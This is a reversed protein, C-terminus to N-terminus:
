EPKPFLAAWNLYVNILRDDQSIKSQLYQAVDENIKESIWIDIADAVAHNFVESAVPYLDIMNKLAQNPDTEFLQEYKTQLKSVEHYQDEM